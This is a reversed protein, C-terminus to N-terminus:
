VLGEVYNKDIILKGNTRNLSLIPTENTGSTFRTIKFGDAYNIYIKNYLVNGIYINARLGDSDWIINNNIINSTGTNIPQGSMLVNDSVGSFARYQDVEANYQNTVQNFTNYFKFDLLNMLTM